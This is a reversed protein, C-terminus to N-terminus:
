GHSLAALSDLTLHRIRLPQAERSAVAGQYGPAPQLAAVQWDHTLASTTTVVPQFDAGIDAVDVHRMDLRLGLGCAKLVAEKATWIQFFTASADGDAHLRAQERATFNAQAFPQQEMSVEREVDIGVPIRALAVAVLEGAHSLNFHWGTNGGEAIPALQPKGQADTIFVLSAPAVHLQQALLGRLAAHAVRYRQGDAEHRFRAARTHEAPSLWALAPATLAATEDFRLFTINIM